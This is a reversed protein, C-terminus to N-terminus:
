YLFIDSLLKNLMFGNISVCIAISLILQYQSINISESLIDYKLYFFM